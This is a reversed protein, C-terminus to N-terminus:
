LEFSEWTDDAREPAAQLAALADLLAAQEALRPQEFLSKLPVAVAFEVRIAEALRVVLLSHGGRAFFHADRGPLEGGLLQRWLEALRRESASELVGEDREGTQPKPLAKRDLKGNATLPLAPLLQIQRPLMYDPLVGRLADRLAQPDPEANAAAVAYAMLWAGEGQGEVTVAADVVQPLAALKAAIEGPEIRYGRLKVQDDGRGRYELSGDARYCGLDGSRYRRQGDVAVFREATLEPRQWYGQAVGDGEVVLEGVVGLPVPQGADDLVHVALDPLARGIRSAPSQLDEDSLRHFSVHVTTETIGYMNILEANPYRGRWPQLRSPELAEGGFVVTKVKLPVDRRLVQSQLAYFASPTQNLVTIGQEALLDLFADPQRCVAEPVLVARGGYLWAGWLEWVAFDFAHSHFLSWVDHEDFAFHGDQTAATFLREVNRHTVVVGKPTGTSGSTYILYAPADAPVEPLEGPVVADLQARTFPDDLCLATGPLEVALARLSVSLCVGSDELVFGSRAAPAQPDVPVYAAGTKLIALLAVLLDRGRPLCLGVRQGPGAGQRILLTALQSSRRDLAAYDLEGDEASVAIRAPHRQAVEAFRAVLSGVCPYSARETWAASRSQSPLLPLDDLRQLSPLQQLVFALDDLMQEVLWGDLKGRDLVAEIRLGEDEPVATLMLPYNSHARHDLEEIRPGADGGRAAAPLNEFVLLTDFLSGADAAGARQIEALPLYGHTRLDLNRRQLNQLWSAPAAQGATVVRLPVSNIFVGLMREVGALEPPRGAITIGLAFDDRGYYRRLVLALAGQLLSNATLGHGQAWAAAAAFDFRRALSAYGAAPEAAEPLAVPELGGLQERWFARATAPDQERLWQLYDRFPPAAALQPTRGERLAAYLRWVEGLLLASSWGDVILHHRTWILWHEDAGRRLLALRMLPPAALDFGIDRQQAQLEALRSQAQAPDLDSWDQEISPLEVQRHPLQRASSLGQVVFGSRLIPHRALAQRWADAFAEADLAGHLAVTTQNIYPDAQANLLSHFLLGEQLPALPYVDQAQPHRALLADLQTADLGALPLDALTPRPEATQASAILERLAALYRRSLAQLAEGAAANRPWAWDLRLEGDVLMANLDLLHRRRNGGARGGGDHEECLTWGDREGARLQGLYNFCVQPVPLDALEGHLYRLVGFGLGRDPIARLQDKTARLAAGPDEGAPLRLALPYRATFWGVTRSLDLDAGLDDRGHGELEVWLTTAADDGRLALALAALLLEQPENGYARATQTLLRETWERDLRDHLHVTDAYRNDSNQWPLRTADADPDLACWYGRWRELTAAPLQRLAAQWEGFGCAEAALTPVRGARREAYAQQLDDVIVAWSVADVLLHHAAFLVRTEGDQPGSLALVRWLSGDFSLSSQWQALLTERQGADAERHVFHDAQWAGIRQRWQGGADRQFRARLMPHAAAVDVLAAAFAATDLAGPLKLYLSMNWHAPEDLAQEFFWRQIPTLGFAQEAESAPKAAAPAPASAQVQASLAALTPHDYLQRPMLALGAQRARAVVQLSLISDGGLAFFNEHAGIHERGLLKQWLERLVENVPPEDATEASPDTEDQQLLEALAQRDIKGNGLRPMSEVVRWRTPCLYEPLRQALADAVGDLTGQVCAGLQLVGNAGPLALVAAVEVGPLQALVQEVEGLEVRYGRIKVQHDGRGLYVIRGESDIKALDGSRYLTRGPAFPHAVFRETTQEDRHWYGLSLNGGGLYLEGAVGIPAPLGFRDLVWAENGALPHGVPVGQEAPWEDPVTCTLIGVTTETPGYHNVIRLSPALARVQQVLAGSLAEGGTVLCERPLVSADGGAALLGALHSPVIKLCDVPHAQLHAALAQADFALEAPLLRVRRGSLLAGFLATFGLDAAVTSLTALSANEGLELVPLVGAVYHALNRQSVVVGKPTGTSGSTYILYAPTDVGVDVSPPEAYPATDALVSEADLWHVGAPLWAPAAGWGIVVDAGSDDLVAIQRTDPHQPDLPLWAAGRHWVAAMAALQAFTRPLCLAVHAGPPTGAAALAAAIRGAAARLQAYTWSAYGEEVAVAQAPAQWLLSQATDSSARESLAAPVADTEGLLEAVTCDPRQLLRLLSAVALDLMAAVADRDVRAADLLAELRVNERESVRLTLAYHNAARTERVSLAFPLQAPAMAPFNEVVLLSAFLRDADLGSDALVEGLGVAENEAIELSQERLASLLDLAPRNADVRLRLPLTNIFVGVMSEVGTLDPPRGSRTVGLVVDDSNGYRANALGWALAVLDSLTCGRERCFARLRESDHASLWRECEERRTAGSAGAPLAAAGSYGHLRERWWGRQRVLDQRERWDLYGDFGPAPPLSLAIGRVDSTYRQLMEGVLLPTSWGDVILHHISWALWYRGGGRAILCMRALPARAFDVGRAADDALWRQLQADQAAPDLQSWDLEQWPAQAGALVIQHPVSLGEWVIATRLMPQRRATEFWSRALAAADLEGELEAVTQQFYPDAGEGRLSELLVGRQLPTLAFAREISRADERAALSAFEGADLRAQPLDSATLLGSGPELCHAVLASLEAAFDRTWQEITVADYAEGAYNWVLGLRGGRVRANIEVLAGPPNDAGNGSALARADVEFAPHAGGDVVGHYNFLLQGAPLPPIRGSAALPMYELGRRALARIQEKLAAIQAPGDTGALDLPLPHVATYWGLVSSWDRGDLVDRGHRERDLWLRSRGTRAALARALAILLLEDTQCRYAAGARELLDATLGADLTQVVRGVNRQRTDALAVARDQPLAQMPQAAVENWFRADFSQAADAQALAEIYDAYSANRASPTWALGRALAALGDFLEGLLLRWSVADVILHHACILLREGEDCRAVTLAALPGALPTAEQMRAFEADIRADLDTAGRWDRAQIAPAPGPADVRQRWQGDVREFRARLLDHRQWLAAWVRNLHEADLPQKLRLAVYQHYRDPQAPASDFFWRQIPSLGLEGVLPATEAPAAQLPALHPALEVASQFQYMLKPTVAYGRERLRAVVQLSRISDGGLRFFSDHIGVECQLVDSWVACLAREQPTRPPTRDAPAPAPPAPLARRDVKGSANRPLRALVVFQAPVMHAPLRESLARHWGEADAESSDAESSDAESSDAENSDAENSDAESSDTESSDAAVATTEGVREVWAVLRQATGEGVVGAAAARVRPLQGLCHEIEELEIRYGRLKIQFDARGLFQLEGNGLLRVRDGTRYMRLSEDSPLRLPAFRRESAAADGRYGEALGIGGLALEGSAGRPAIRGHADLVAAIRGPLLRGLPVPRTADEAQVRHYHSSITAETPGYANILDRGQNLGLEFWRRALSVPLVDGGVVLCRLPLGRWDDAATALLLENAYAPALDVVTVAREALCALFRRPELLEDSQAVVCAGRSWAALPQELTTDVALGAVHLVRDNPTLALADAAGAIHAALAAHGVEVGKPAGTSGSTYLVYALPNSSPAPAEDTEAHAASQLADVAIISEPAFWARGQADTVVADCASAAVVERLRAQPWQADLPVVSLGARWAGLLACYWDLGRPLCLAVSRAQAGLRRRLAGARADAAVILERYSLRGQATELATHEPFRQAIHAITEAVSAAAPPAAERRDDLALEAAPWPWSLAPAHPQELMASLAVFYREAWRAVTAADWLATNYEWVASMGGAGVLVELTLEHKAIDEPLALARAQVGHLDLALDADHRLAFMLQFLPAHRNSREVQLAEIVRELPLAQHELAALQHDRCRAVLTAFDPDDHLQTRLVVTNVFLGVLSELEPRVRGAVPTGMLLDDGAGCRALLAAFAAQLVHFATARSAQAYAAVREALGPPFALRLKAGAQGLAAPRERDLPLAHLHPAGSLAEVHHRLSDDLRDLTDRQWRAYDGYRCPLPTAADVTLGCEARYARGLDETLLGLSVGDCAIHHVVVQLWHRPGSDNQASGDQGGDGQASENQGDLRLLQMRLPRQRQLDFPRLRFGEVAADIEGQGRGRLDAAEVAAAGDGVVISQGDRVCRDLADHRALLRRVARELAAPDVEGRLEFLAALHYAHGGPEFQELFWLREQGLSLPAPAGDPAPEIPLARWDRNADQAQSLLAILAERRAGIDARLQADLPARTAKFALRGDEVHLAIGANRARELIELAAGEPTAAHQGTAEVATM